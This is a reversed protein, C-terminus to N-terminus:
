LNNVLVKWENEIETDGYYIAIISRSIFSLLFIIFYFRLKDEFIKNKLVRSLNM